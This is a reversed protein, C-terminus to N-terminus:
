RSFYIRSLRRSSDLFCNDGNVAEIKECIGRVSDLLPLRSALATAKEWAFIIAERLEEATRPMLVKVIKDM